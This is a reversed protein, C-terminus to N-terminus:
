RAARAHDLRAALVLCERLLVAVRLDAEVADRQIEVLLTVGAALQVLEERSGGDSRASLLLAPNGDGRQQNDSQFCYGFEDPDLRRRGIAFIPEVM